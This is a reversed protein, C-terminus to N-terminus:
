MFDQDYDIYMTYHFYFENSDLIAVDVQNIEVEHPGNFLDHKMLYKEARQETMARVLFYCDKKNHEIIRSSVHGGNEITLYLTEFYEFTENLLIDLTKRETFHGGLMKHCFDWFNLTEPDCKQTWKIGFQDRGTGRGSRCENLDGKANNFMSQVANM